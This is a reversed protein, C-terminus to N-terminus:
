SAQIKIFNASMNQKLTPVVEKLFLWLQDVAHFLKLTVVVETLSFYFGMNEIARSSDVERSM